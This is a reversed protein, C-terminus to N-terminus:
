HGRRRCSFDRVKRSLVLEDAGQNRIIDGKQDLGTGSLVM